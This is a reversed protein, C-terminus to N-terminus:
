KPVIKIYNTYGKTNKGFSIQKQRQTIRAEDTEREDTSEKVRKGAKENGAKENDATENGAKENGAKAHRAHPRKAPAEAKRRGHQSVKLEANADSATDADAMTHVNM